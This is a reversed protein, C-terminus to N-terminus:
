GGCVQHSVGIWGLWGPQPLVRSNLALRPLTNLVTQFFNFFSSLWFAPYNENLFIHFAEHIQIVPGRVSRSNMSQALRAPRWGWATAMGAEGASLNCAHGVMGFNQVQTRSVSRFGEHKHPWCKSGLADGWGVTNTQNTKRSLTKHYM